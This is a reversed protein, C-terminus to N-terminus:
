LSPSKICYNLGTAQPPIILPDTTNCRATSNTYIEPDNTNELQAWLTYFKKNAGIQYCYFYTKNLNSCGAAGGTPKTPDNPIKNFYSGIDPIWNSGTDSAYEFVPTPNTLLDNPPWHNNDARYALIASNISKLDQKRVADKGKNRANGTSFIVVGALTAIIAIAVLLEILTFALRGQRKNTTRLEHDTTKKHSSVIFWSSNVLRPM